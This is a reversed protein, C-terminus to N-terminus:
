KLDDGVRKVVGHNADVEVLDGDKFAKTAVKTGIVCPIGLERSVIAAHCTIGGEDTVIAAARKVAVMFDPSTMATILIEGQCITNCNKANLIIRVKGSVKGPQAVKGRIEEKEEKKEYERLFDDIFQVPNDLFEFTGNEKAIYAHNKYRDIIKQQDVGGHNLFKEVEEPFAYRVYTVDFDWRKAIEKFIVECYWHLKTFLEKKYDILFHSHQVVKFLNYTNESLAYQKIIEAQEKKINETFNRLANYRCILEEKSQKLLTKLESLFHEQDYHNAGYDFPVWIYKQTHEEIASKDLGKELAIKLLDEEERQLFSKEPATILKNFEEKTGNFNPKLIEGFDKSIYAIPEGYPCIESYASVIKMYEKLLEQNSYESLDAIKLFEIFSELDKTKEEFIKRIKYVHLPDKRLEMEMNKIIGFYNTNENACFYYGHDARGFWVTDGISHGKYIQNTLAKSLARANGMMWLISNVNAKFQIYELKM